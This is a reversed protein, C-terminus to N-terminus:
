SSSGPSNVGGQQITNWASNGGGSVRDLDEDGIEPANNEDSIEIKTTEDEFMSDGFRRNM